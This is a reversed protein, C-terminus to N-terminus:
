SSASRRSARRRRGIPGSRPTASAPVGAPPFDNAKFEVSEFSDKGEQTALWGAFCAAANTNEAGVMMGNYLVRIPVFDMYHMDFPHM